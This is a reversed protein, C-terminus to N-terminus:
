TAKELEISGDQSASAWIMYGVDQSASAWIMYGLFLKKVDKQCLTLHILPAANDVLWGIMVACFLGMM